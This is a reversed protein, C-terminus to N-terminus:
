QYSVNEQYTDETYPTFSLELNHIKAKRFADALAPTMFKRFSDLSVAYTIM